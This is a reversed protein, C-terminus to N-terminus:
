NSGADLPARIWSLYEQPDTFYGACHDQGKYIKVQFGPYHRRVVPLQGLNLLDLGKSGCRYWVRRQDEPAIAPWTYDICSQAINEVSAADMKLFTRVMQQAYEGYGAEVLERVAENPRGVALAKVELLKSSLKKKIFRSSKLMPAGDLLCADIRIAPDAFLYLAVQGGISLGLLFALETWGSKVLEDRLDDAEQRASVFTEIHQAGHASLTPVIYCYGDGLAARIEDFVEGDVAIPHLLVAKPLTQDGHIQLKM